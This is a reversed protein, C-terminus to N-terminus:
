PNNAWGGAKQEDTDLTFVFRSVCGEKCGHRSIQGMALGLWLRNCFGIKSEMTLTQLYDPM